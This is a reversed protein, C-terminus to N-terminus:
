WLISGDVRCELTVPSLFCRGASVKCIVRRAPVDRLIRYIIFHGKFVAALRISSFFQNVTSLEIGLWDLMKGKSSGTKFFITFFEGISVPLLFSVLGNLLGIFIVGWFALRYKRVHDVAYKISEQM